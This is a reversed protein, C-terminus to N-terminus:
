KSEEIIKTVEDVIERKFKSFEYEQDHREIEKNNEHITWFIYTMYSFSCGILFGWILYEIM